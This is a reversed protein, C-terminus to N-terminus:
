LTSKSQLLDKEKICIWHGGNTVPAAFLWVLGAASVLYVCQPAIVKSKQGKEGQCNNKNGLCHDKNGLCHNKNGSVQWFAPKQTLHGV